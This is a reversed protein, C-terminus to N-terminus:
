FLSRSDTICLTVTVRVQSDGGAYYIAGRRYGDHFEHTGDINPQRSDTQRKWVKRFSIM